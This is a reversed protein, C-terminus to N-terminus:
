GLGNRALLDRVTQGPPAVPSAKAKATAASSLGIVKGFFVLLLDVHNELACWRAKVSLTRKRTNFQIIIKEEPAAKFIIHRAPQAADGGVTAFPPPVAGVVPTNRCNGVLQVGMAALKEDLQQASHVGPPALMVTVATNWHANIGALRRQLDGAAENLEETTQLAAQSMDIGAGVAAAVHVQTPLRALTLQLPQGNSSRLEKIRDRDTLMRAGLLLAMQAIPAGSSDHVLKKVHAIDKEVSVQWEGLLGALGTVSVAVNAPENGSLARMAAALDPHGKLWGPDQKAALDRLFAMVKAQDGKAAGDQAGRGGAALVKSAASADIHSSVFARGGGGVGRAYQTGTGASLCGGLIPNLPTEVFLDERHKITGPSAPEAGLMNAELVEPCSALKAHKAADGRGRDAAQWRKHVNGALPGRAGATRDSGRNHNKGVPPRQPVAGQATSSRGHSAM